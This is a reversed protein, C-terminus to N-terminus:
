KVLPHREFPANEDFLKRYTALTFARTAGIHEVIRIIKPNFDGLWVIYMSQYRNSKQTIRKLTMVLASELGRNQYEPIVGFVLGYITRCKGSWRYYLFKLKGALNLKGNVYRFIENLEPINILFAVPTDRHYGFIVVEPDIVRKMGAFINLAQKKTMPSFNERSAGWAKNYITMFDEAYKEINRLQIHEFRYGENETLRNIKREIVPPLITDTHIQYVFQNFYNKFGYSEFLDQYYAPNYSMLYPPYKGRGDLLLGWFREREGFNIPGDMAEMGRAELWNKCADFLMFAADKHNICEFFGMGGTPQDFTYALNNNIFAAVRGIVVGDSDKLIWRIAEGHQFQLNQGPSFVTEVDKELHPIWYPDGAYIKRPLDLFERVTKRDNVEILQMM